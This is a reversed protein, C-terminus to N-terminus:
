PRIGRQLLNTRGDEGGWNFHHVPRPATITGLHRGAADFIWVGGPASLYLNSRVDAKMGDLAEEGPIERTLDIFIVGRGLSGDRGM